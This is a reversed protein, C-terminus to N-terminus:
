KGTGFETGFLETAGVTVVETGPAPGRALVAVDGAVHQVEVRRRAYVHPAVRTYVWTGGFADHLIAAFPVTLRDGENGRLTLTASVRQGPRLVGEANSLAYYLDVSAANPDASPPATVPPAMRQELEVVDGLGSIRAPVGRVVDPLDGVYVPVRIWVRDQRVVEFLPAGAAVRQGPAVHVAQVVGTEPATIALATAGDAAGTRGSALGIRARAARLGAEASALEAQANEYEQATVARERFLAEYREAQAKATRLRVEAVTLDEEGRVLDSEPPLAVLRMVEKGAAVRQGARPLSGSSSTLITGAVPSSVIIARGPPVVVQAGYTRVRPVSRREIAAVQIGLRQEAHQSLTITALESEQQANAVTAPPPADSGSESTCGAILAPLVIAWVQCRRVIPGSRFSSSM